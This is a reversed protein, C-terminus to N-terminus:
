GKKIPLKEIRKALRVMDIFYNKLSPKETKIKVM